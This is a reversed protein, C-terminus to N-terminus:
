EGKRDDLAGKYLLKNTLKTLWKPIPEGADEFHVRALLVVRELPSYDLCNCKAKGNDDLSLTCTGRCEKAPVLVYITEDPRNECKM